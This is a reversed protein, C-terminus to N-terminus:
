YRFYTWHVITGSFSENFFNHFDYLNNFGDNIFLATRFIDIPKNDVYIDQFYHKTNKHYHISIKQVSVCIGEKFCHYNKTRVGTAFHIKLGPKWRNGPDLRISHIKTGDLIKEKFEQKFSLIM